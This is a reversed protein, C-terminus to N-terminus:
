QGDLIMYQCDTPNWNNTARLDMPCASLIVMLDMLAKLCVFQGAQSTPKDFTLKGDASVQVNMFINFPPPPVMNIADATLLGSQRLALGYNETCSPHDGEAGLLKYRGTDCPSVLTDHVGPTTDESLIMMARSTNSYLVDGVTPTMKCLAGHTHAMSLSEDLNMPNLAWCDVVQKGHTNIIKITQGNRLKLAVGSRAPIRHIPLPPM